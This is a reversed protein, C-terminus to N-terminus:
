FLGLSLQWCFILGTNPKQCNRWGLFLPFFLAAKCGVVSHGYPPKEQSSCFIIHIIPVQEGFRPTGRFDRLIRMLLNHRDLYAQFIHTLEKLWLFSTWSCSTLFLPAWQSMAGIISWFHPYPIPGYSTPAGLYVWSPHLHYTQSADLHTPNTNDIIIITIKM